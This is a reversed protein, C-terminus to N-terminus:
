ATIMPIHTPIITRMVTIIIIMTIMTMIIMREPANLPLRMQPNDADVLQV